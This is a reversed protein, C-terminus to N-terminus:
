DPRRVLRDAWLGGPCALDPEERCGQWSFAILDARGLLREMPVYGVDRLVRSDGSNDRNDGLVFLHGAPVTYLPTNDAHEDDSLELIPHERGEPLRELYETVEVIDGTHERYSYRGTERREVLTDNIYLRGARMQVREGPLGIVRKVLDYDGRPHRFVVIDGRAPMSELLRGSGTPLEVVPSFRSYGYAFKAAYFHDGVRLTPLMSESPVHYAAYALTNFGLYLLGAVLITGGWDLVESRIRRM